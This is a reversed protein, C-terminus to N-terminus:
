NDDSGEQSEEDSPEIAIETQTAVATKIATRVPNYFDVEAPTFLSLMVPVPNTRITVVLAYRAEKAWDNGNSERWWGSVPYVAVLGCNALDAATGTWWDSHISGRTRLQPGLEWGATDGVAEFDEEEDRAAVSLRKRFQEETETPRKVEFRLGHSLYRHRHKVFGDRRGPKPEIFYSLTVRLTVSQAGLDSLQEKPWPLAHLGMDKTKIAGDEKTFPQLKQQVLLTLASKASYLARDLSPVGYGYRRLRAAHDRKTTGFVTQMPETWEASHILLARVTEPWLNPYNAQLIAGMRAAQATAASTDRFGVLLRGSTAHATTLLGMEDPDMVQTTGKVVVQNGGELVIDPKYPWQRETPTIWMISTTSCPSLDGVPAIPEYGPFQSQNYIARSTYAGVTVANWAQAPDQVSDTDNSDPYRHREGPDTNGASIFFLRPNNDMVGVCIQDIVGSWSSPKGRDKGDTTMAMCFNRNRHPAAIEVRSITQSTIAGYLRPENARPRPPLIRASELRHSPRFAANAQLLEALEPGYLVIGAMESGHEDRLAVPRDPSDAKPWNPDYCHADDTSFASAILPNPIVGGDLLCVAPADGPPPEIKHLFSNVWEGQDQPSMAIFDAPNEKARRVEGIMELLETSAMLQDATGYVLGVVRDPFDITDTGVTLGVSESQASLQFANWISQGGLKRVWVEWWIPVTQPPFDSEEDTWFSRLTALRIESVRAILDQHKPKPPTNATGKTDENIYRETVKLFHTLSGEPVQVTAIQIDGDTRVCAVEIGKAKNELSDLNLFYGPESRVEISIPAPDTGSPDVGRKEENEGRLKELQTKVSNGHAARDRAPLPYDPGFGQRATYKETTFFGDVILHPLRDTDM